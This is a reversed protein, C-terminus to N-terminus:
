IQLCCSKRGDKIKLDFLYMRFRNQTWILLLRFGSVLPFFLKKHLIVKLM